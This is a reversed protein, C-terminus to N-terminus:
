GQGPRRPPPPSFANSVYVNPSVPIFVLGCLSPSCAVQEASLAVGGLYMRGLSDQKASCDSGGLGRPKEMEEMLRRGNCRGRGPHNESILVTVRAELIEWGERKRGARGGLIVIIIMPHHRPEDCQM